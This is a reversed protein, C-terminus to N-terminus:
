QGHFPRWCDGGSDSLHATSNSDQETGIRSCRLWPSSLQWEDRCRGAGLVEDEGPSLVGEGDPVAEWGTPLVPKSEVHTYLAKLYQHRIEQLRIKLAHMSGDKAREPPQRVELNFEGGTNM